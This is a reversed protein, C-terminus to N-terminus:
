KSPREAIVPMSVSTGSDSPTKLKWAETSSIGVAIYRVRQDTMLKSRDLLRWCDLVTPHRMRAVFVTPTLNRFEDWPTAIVCFDSGELCESVSPAYRVKNGLVGRAFEMGAPDYCNVTAGSEVLDKTIYIAASEEVVFTNPKYTLGLVAVRPDEIGHLSEIIRHSLLHSHEQNIQDTARSLKAQNGLTEALHSFARNDRPFCPGGYGLGGKLYKPGIRSDLGVARSVVDVDGGPAPECLSALTNAFSIKMTVYVNVSIKALEANWLSMRVVPPTNKCFREYMGSLMEGSRSDSEGILVMDPNLLGHVVEGLAIFEPSYCLGFERGCMKGSIRELLPKLISDSAGPLVTSVVSVLHFKNKTRIARAIPELAQEVYCTSFGGDRDSPTPVIVFSADSKKAAEELDDTVTIMSKAKKLLSGVPPEAGIVDGSAVAELIEPRM